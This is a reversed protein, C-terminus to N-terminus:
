ATEPSLDRLEPKRPNLDWGGCWNGMPGTGFAGPNVLHIM